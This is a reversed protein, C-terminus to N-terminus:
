YKRILHGFILIVQALEKNEKYLHKERIARLFVTKMENKREKRTGIGKVYTSHLFLLACLDHVKVNTTYPKIIENPLGSNYMYRKLNPNPNKRENFQRSEVVNLLLPRSHAAADRVNKSFHMVEKATGLEKSKFKGKSIYFKVFNVLQGYSMLEILVWITPNDKYKEYLDWHYGKKNESDKLIKTAVDIYNSKNQILNLQYTNYDEIIKYGDEDSETILNMLKTKISHEIDLSMKILLYRLHMDIVALDKLNAFDVGSYKQNRDKEFNKRFATVKFYYSNEKLHRKADIESTYKFTIGKWKMYEIQEEITMKLKNRAKQILDYQPDDQQRNLEDQKLGEKIGELKKLDELKLGSM